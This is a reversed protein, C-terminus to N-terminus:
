PLRAPPEPRLWGRASSMLIAAVHAAHDIGGRDVSALLEDVSSTIVEISETNEPRAPVVAEAGWAVFIHGRHTSRHPEPALVVLPAWVEAEYGTEEALERRAADLPSEGPDIVGAPLERSRRGLGHRYQDVLVIRGDRRIAIAAAWDPSELLHFREIHEGNSLEVREERLRLWPRDILIQSSLVIWPTM